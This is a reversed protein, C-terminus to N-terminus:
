NNRSSAADSPCSAAATAGAHRSTIRRSTSRPNRMGDPSTQAEGPNNSCLTSDYRVVGRLSEIGLPKPRDDGGTAGATEDCATTLAQLLGRGTRQAVRQAGGRPGAALDDTGTARLAEPGDGLMEPLRAVTQAEESPLLHGYTDMTLVISAHRMLRQVAKPSAGSMAAWSGCTHRLAHFDLVEGEHNVVALFDSQERRLREGPDHEAAKLWARRAADLDARLMTAVARPMAFVPAGPAKRGIHERLEAALAEQIFQRADQRNKTSGAKCTVYPPTSDLYLRGRTLSRLESSRLGTQIATAYLLVRGRSDMGEREVNDSLAVSRLWDWETPLLMRRELRRDSKPSPKQVSALPDAPLKGNMALWRTFGKIATLHAQVTRASRTELLVSAHANIGDAGIDGAVVFGVAEAIGRIFTL